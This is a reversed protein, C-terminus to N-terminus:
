LRQKKFISAIFGSGWSFHMTIIAVTVGIFLHLDKEKRYLPMIGTILIM